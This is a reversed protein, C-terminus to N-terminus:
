FQGEERVEPELKLLLAKAASLGAKHGDEHFGYGMWAGAYWTNLRGQILHMRQQAATSKLDFIPHTYNFTAAIKKSDIENIPNLSVIVPENFPLPQLKNLYYHLCVNPFAGDGEGLQQRGFTSGHLAHSQFNWAAWALRKSPLVTSDTHLIATNDKFKFAGLVDQELGCPDGLMGLAQDAHSAIIVHDFEERGRESVVHILGNDREIRLVPTNTYKRKIQNTIIEVYQKSGGKVTFWRPRNSVQLLGHNHCFSIMTSVPFALMQDAPCSWICGLMPLLYWNIFYSNFKHEILFDNLPKNLVGSNPHTALSTALSNFRIIDKLMCLFDLNLLNKRQSFVSNLSTGSWELNNYQDKPAQVSFSMDSLATPICLEKFLAILNPYTRENFVLFGTDVPYSQLGQPTSALMDVTHTHGGYYDNAEFLSVEVGPHKNLLHAASLGSIGSGIIAVRSTM